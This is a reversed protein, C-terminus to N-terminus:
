ISVGEVTVMEVVAPPVGVPLCVRSSVKSGTESVGPRIGVM